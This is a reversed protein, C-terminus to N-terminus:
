RSDRGAADLALDFRLPDSARAPANATVAYASGLERLGDGRRRAGNREASRRDGAERLLAYRYNKREIKPLWDKREEPPIRELIAISSAVDKALYAIM